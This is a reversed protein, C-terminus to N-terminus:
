EDGVGLEELRFRMATRSVLLEAALYYAFPTRPCTGHYARRFAAERARCVEAPMLLEAAFRNAQRELRNVTDYDGKIAEQTDAAFGDMEGRHLLFHGLEHAATFRRRAVPADANVYVRGFPGSVFLFGALDEDEGLDGPRIGNAQLHDFVVSRSLRPLEVQRLPHEAIFHALFVPGPRGPDVPLRLRSRLEAVKGAVWGKEETPTM